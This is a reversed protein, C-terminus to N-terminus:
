GFSNNLIRKFMEISAKRHIMRHTVAEYHKRFSRESESVSLDADTSDNTSAIAATKSLGTPPMLRQSWVRREDGPGIYFWRGARYADAQIGADEDLKEPMPQNASPLSPVCPTPAV